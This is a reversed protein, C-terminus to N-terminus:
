EANNNTRRSYNDYVIQRVFEETIPKSFVESSWIILTVAGSLQRMDETFAEESTLYDVVKELEEDMAIHRKAFRTKLYTKRADQDLAGIRVVMGQSLRSILAPHFGAQESLPCNSSAIIHAGKSCLFDIENLFEGQTATKGCLDQIGDILFLELNHYKERFCDMMNYRIAEVLEMIYENATIYVM